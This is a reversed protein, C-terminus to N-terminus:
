PNGRDVVAIDTEVEAIREFTPPSIFRSAASRDGSSGIVVLDYAAANSTLYATVESRAVRTEVPREVTEVLNALRTEAPRREVETGICTCVSLDGGDGVLREAFDIM